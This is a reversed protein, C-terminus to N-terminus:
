AIMPVSAVLPLLTNSFIFSQSTAILSEWMRLNDREEM